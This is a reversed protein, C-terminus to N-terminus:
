APNPGVPRPVRFYRGYFAQKNEIMQLLKLDMFKETGTKASIRHSVGAVPTKQFDHVPRSPFLDLSRRSLLVHVNTIPFGGYADCSLQNQTTLVANILRVSKPDSGMASLQCWSDAGGNDM